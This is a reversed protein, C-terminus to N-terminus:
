FRLIYSFKVFVQRDTSTDPLNTISCDFSLEARKCRIWIM